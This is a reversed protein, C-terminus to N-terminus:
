KLIENFHEIALKKEAIIVSIRLKNKTLRLMTHCLFIAIANADCAKVSKHQKCFRVVMHYGFRSVFELEPERVDPNDFVRNLVTTLLLMFNQEELLLIDPRNRWKNPFALYSTQEIEYEEEAWDKVVSIKIPKGSIFDKEKYGYNIYFSRKLQEFM